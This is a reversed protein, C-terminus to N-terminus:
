LSGSEKLKLEAGGVLTLLINFVITLGESARRVGQFYGFLIRVSSGTGYFWTIILFFLFLGLHM